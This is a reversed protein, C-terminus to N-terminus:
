HLRGSPEDGRRGKMPADPTSSPSAAPIVGLVYFGRNALDAALTTIMESRAADANPRKSNAPM